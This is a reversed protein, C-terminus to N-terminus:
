RCIEWKWFSSFRWMLSFFINRRLYVGAEMGVRVLHFFACGKSINSPAAYHMKHHSFNWVRWVMKYKHHLDKSYWFLCRLHHLIIGKRKSQLLLRGQESEARCCNVKLKGNPYFIKKRLISGLFNKLTVCSSAVLSFTKYLVIEKATQFVVQKKHCHQYISFELDRFNARLKRLLNPRLQFGDM